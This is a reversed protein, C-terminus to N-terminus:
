QEDDNVEVFYETHSGVDYYKEGKSTVWSRVYYIKFNRESCFAHYIKSSEEATKPEGILRREGRSNEFYLKMM